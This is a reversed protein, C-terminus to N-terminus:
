GTQPDPGVDPTAVAAPFGIAYSPDVPGTPVIKPYRIRPAPSVGAPLQEGRQAAVALAERDWERSVRVFRPDATGVDAVPDITVGLAPSLEIRVAYRDTEVQKVGAADMVRLVEEKLRQLLDEHRSAQGSLRAAEARLALATQNQEAMVRCLLGVHTAVDLCTAAIAAWLDDPVDGTVEAARLLASVRDPLPEPAM